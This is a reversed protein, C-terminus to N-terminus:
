RIKSHSAIRMYRLRVILQRYHDQELNDRFIVCASKLRKGPLIFRLISVYHTVTSEGAIEIPIDEGLRRLSWGNTDHRIAEWQLQDKFIIRSYLLIGSILAIKIALAMTLYCVIAISGLALVVQILIFLKSIQFKSELKQM